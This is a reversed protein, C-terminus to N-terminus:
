VSPTKSTSGTCVGWIANTVPWNPAISGDYIQAQTTTTNPSSPTFTLTPSTGYFINANTTIATAFDFVFILAVLGIITKQSIIM